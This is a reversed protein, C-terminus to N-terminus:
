VQEPLTKLYAEAIIPSVAKVDSPRYGKGLAWERANKWHKGAAKLDARAKSVAEIRQAENLTVGSEWLGGIPGQRVYPTEEGPPRPPRCICPGSVGGSDTVEPCGPNTHQVVLVGHM